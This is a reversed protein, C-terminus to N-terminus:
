SGNDAYMKKQKMVNLCVNIYPQAIHRLFIISLRKLYTLNSRNDINQFGGIIKQYDEIEFSSGKVNNAVLVKFRVKSCNQAYRHNCVQIGIGFLGFPIM